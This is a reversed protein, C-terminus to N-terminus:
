KKFSVKNESWDGSSEWKLPNYGGLIEKTGKVKIFTVINPIGDYTWRSKRKIIVSIQITQKLHSIDMKDIRRSITLIINLDSIIRSNIYLSSSKYSIKSFFDLLPYCHQLINEM